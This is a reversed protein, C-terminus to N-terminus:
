HFVVTEGTLRASHPGVLFLVLDALDDAEALRQLRNLGEQDAVERTAAFRATKVGPPAICNVNVGYPKLEEALCLTYHVIGRKAAVYIIGEEVPIFAGGSSINVIRGTQRERMHRGVYKCVYMTALLNRSVVSLIDDDLIDLANNTDPRPSSAGIDGGANNVVIDIHGYDALIQSVLGSVAAPDRLDAAYFSSRVGLERISAAVAEGSPAEGFRAASESARDTIIVDAGAEALRRAYAFGLGRTSGTVLAVQGALIKDESV